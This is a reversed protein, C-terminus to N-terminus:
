QIFIIGITDGVLHGCLYMCTWVHANRVTYRCEEDNFFTKDDPSYLFM